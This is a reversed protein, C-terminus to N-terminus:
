NRNDGCGVVAFGAREHEVDSPNVGPSEDRDFHGENTLSAQCTDSNGGHVPNVPSVRRVVGHIREDRGVLIDDHLPLYKPSLNQINPPQLFVINSSNKAPGQDSLLTIKQSSLESDDVDTGYTNPLFPYSYQKSKTCTGHLWRLM